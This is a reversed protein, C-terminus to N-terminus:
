HGARFKDTVRIIAPSLEQLELHFDVNFMILIIQFLSSLQSLM